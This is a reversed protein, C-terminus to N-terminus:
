KWLKEGSNVSNTVEKALDSMKQFIIQVIECHKFDDRGFFSSNRGLNSATNTSSENLM